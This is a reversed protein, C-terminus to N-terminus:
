NGEMKGASSPWERVCVCGALTVAKSTWFSISATIRCSLGSFSCAKNVLHFSGERSPQRRESSVELVVVAAAAEFVVVVAVVVVVFGM